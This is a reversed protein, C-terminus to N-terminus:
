LVGEIAALDLRDDHLAEDLDIAFYSGIAGVRGAELVDDGDLLSALIEAQDVVGLAAERDVTDGRLLCLVLKAFDSSHLKALAPDWVQNRM